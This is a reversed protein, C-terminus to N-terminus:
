DTVIHYINMLKYLIRNYELLIILIHYVLYEFFLMM